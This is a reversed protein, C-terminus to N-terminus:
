RPRVHQSIEFVATQMAAPIDIKWRAPRGPLQQVPQLLRREHGAPTRKSIDSSYPQTQHHFASSIAPTRKQFADNGIRSAPVQGTIIGFRRSSDLRGACASVRCYTHTHPARDGPNFFVKSMVGLRWVSLLRWTEDTRAVEQAICGARRAGGQEAAFGLIYTASQMQKPKLRRLCSSSGSSYGMM